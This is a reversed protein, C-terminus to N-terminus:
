IQWHDTDQENKFKANILKYIIAVNTIIMTCFAIFLYLTSNVCHFIVEYNRSSMFKCRPSDSYKKWVFFNQVNYAVFVQASPKVTGRALYVLWGVIAGFWLVGLFLRKLIYM